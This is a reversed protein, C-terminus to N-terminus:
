TVAQQSRYSNQNEQGADNLRIRLRLDAAPSRIFDPYYLQLARDFYSRSRCRDPSRSLGPLHQM